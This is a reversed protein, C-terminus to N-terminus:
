KESGTPRGTEGDSFGFEPGAKRSERYLCGQQYRRSM